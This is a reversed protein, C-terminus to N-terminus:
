FPRSRGPPMLHAGNMVLTADGDEADIDGVQGEAGGMHGVHALGDGAGAKGHAGAALARVLGHRGCAGAGLHGKDARDPAVREAVIRQGQPAAVADRRAYFLDVRMRGAGGEDVQVLLIAVVGDDHDGTRGAQDAHGVHFGCGVGDGVRAHKDGLQFLRGVGGQAAQLDGAGGAGEGDEIGGGRQRKVVGDIRQAVEDGGVFM